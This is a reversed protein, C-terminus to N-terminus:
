NQRPPGLFYTIGGYIVSGGLSQGAFGGGLPSGFLPSKDYSLDFFYNMTDKTAYNFQGSLYDGFHAVGFGGIAGAGAGAGVLAGLGGSM